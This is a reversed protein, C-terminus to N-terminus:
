QAPTMLYTSLVWKARNLMQRVEERTRRQAGDAALAEQADSMMGAAVMAPGVFKFTISSEVSDQLDQLTCGFMLREDELRQRIKFDRIMEGNM